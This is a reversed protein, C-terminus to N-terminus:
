IKHLKLLVNISSLFTYFMWDYWIERNYGGQQERNHHRIDFNNIINFLDSDDKSPLKCGEKKLYELVDGLTRVADKKDDLTANYRRYKSIAVHIRADINKPDNTKVTEEFITELGTPPIEFIEGAESLEYGSKYDKLINNIEEQYRAEGKLDDYNDTHWGCNNWCHYFKKQPESVYDLLFEIVTFLKLEDYNAINERIPWIDRMRLKMYFFAEPDNGWTGPIVGEDVYEYGTAKRFHFDRELEEFKLLFVKKLTEFDLPELKAGRREAYYRRKTVVTVGILFTPPVWNFRVRVGFASTEHM